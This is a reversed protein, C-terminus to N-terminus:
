ETFACEKKLDAKLSTLTDWRYQWATYDASNGHIMDATLQLM